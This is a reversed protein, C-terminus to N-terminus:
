LGLESVVLSYLITGDMPDPYNRVYREAEALGRELYKMVDEGSRKVVHWNDHTYRPSGDVVRLVDGGLVGAQSGKLSDLAFLVDDRTFAVGVVGIEKLSRGRDKEIQRYLAPVLM